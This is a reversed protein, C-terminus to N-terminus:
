PATASYSWGVGTGSMTIWKYRVTGGDNYAFVLKDGKTYLVVAAGATGIAPTSGLAMLKAAGNVEMRDAYVGVYRDGSGAERVVEVRTDTYTSGDHHGAQIIHRAAYTAADTSGVFSTFLMDVVNYSTHRYGVMGAYNKSNDHTGDITPFWRIASSSTPVDLGTTNPLV